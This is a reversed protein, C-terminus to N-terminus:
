SEDVRPNLVEADSFGVCVHYEYRHYNLLLFGSVDRDGRCGQFSDEHHKDGATTFYLVAAM